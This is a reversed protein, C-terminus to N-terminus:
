SCTPTPGRFALGKDTQPNGLVHSSRSQRDRVSMSITLTSDTIEYM